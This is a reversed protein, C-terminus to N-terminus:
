VHEMAQIRNLHKNAGSNKAGELTTKLVTVSTNIPHKQKKCIAFEYDGISSHFVAGDDEAIIAETAHTAVCTCLDHLLRTGAAKQISWM